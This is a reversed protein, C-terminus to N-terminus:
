KVNRVELLTSLAAKKRRNAILSSLNTRRNREGSSSIKETRLKGTTKTQSLHSLAEGNSRQVVGM